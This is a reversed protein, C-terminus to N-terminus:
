VREPVGVISHSLLGRYIDTKSCLKVIYNNYKYGDGKISLNEQSMKM